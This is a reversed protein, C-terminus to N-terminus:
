RDHVSSAAWRTKMMKLTTPQMAARQLRRDIVFTYWLFFGVLSFVILLFLVGFVALSYLLIM